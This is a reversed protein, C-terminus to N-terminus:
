EYRVNVIGQYKRVTGEREAFTIDLFESRVKVEPKQKNITSTVSRASSV